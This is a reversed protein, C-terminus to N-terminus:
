RIIPSIITMDYILIRHPSELYFYNFTITIKISMMKDYKKQQKKNQRKMNIKCLITKSM